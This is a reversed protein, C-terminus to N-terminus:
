SALARNVARAVRDPEYPKLVFEVVGADIAEKINRGHGLASVVIAKAKPDFCRIARLADIGNMVPMTIDLVVLDPRLARYREVAKKGNEVEGVVCHGMQELLKRLMARAIPADDAILIRALARGEELM